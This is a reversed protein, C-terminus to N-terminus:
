QSFDLIGEFNRSKSRGRFIAIKELIELGFGLELSAM